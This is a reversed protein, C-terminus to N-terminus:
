DTLPDLYIRGGDVVAIKPGRVNLSEQSILQRKAEIDGICLRKPQMSLAVIYADRNDYAGAHVSGYLDGVIVINGPEVDGLIVISSESELVQRKRLTGKYFQGERKQINSLTQEVISRYMLERKEDQDIICLLEVGTTETITQILIEEETATLTRGTFSIAMRANKFFGAADTFKEVVAKQIEEFPVDPNMRLEMGYRNSKITVLRDM